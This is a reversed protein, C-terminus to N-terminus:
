SMWETLAQNLCPEFRSYESTIAQALDSKFAYFDASSIVMIHKSNGLM